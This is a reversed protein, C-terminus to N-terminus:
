QLISHMFYFVSHPRAAKCRLTGAGANRRRGANDFRHQHAHGPCAKKDHYFSNYYISEQWGDRRV